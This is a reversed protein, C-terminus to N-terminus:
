GGTAASLVMIEDGDRVVSELNDLYRIDEKNIYFNLSKLLSGQENCMKKKLEPYQSLLNEIAETVNNGAVDIISESNTFSRFPVAIRVKVSM